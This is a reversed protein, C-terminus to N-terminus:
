EEEEECSKAETPGEGLQADTSDQLYAWGLGEGKQRLSAMTAEELRSAEEFGVSLTTVPCGSSRPKQKNLWLILTNFWM